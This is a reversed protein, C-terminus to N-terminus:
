KEPCIEADWGLLLSIPLLLPILQSNLSCKSDSVCAVMRSTAHKVLEKSEEIYLVIIGLGLSVVEAQELEFGLIKSHQM